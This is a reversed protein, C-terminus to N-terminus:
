SLCVGGDGGREWGNVWWSEEDCTGLTNFIRGLQKLDSDHPDTPDGLFPRGLELEAHICGLAWM